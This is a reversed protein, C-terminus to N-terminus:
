GRAVSVVHSCAADVAAILLTLVVDQGSDSQQGLSQREGGSGRM